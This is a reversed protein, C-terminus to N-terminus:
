LKKISKRWKLPTTETQNKFSRVFTSPGSFELLYAIEKISLKPNKLYKQALEIKLEEIIQKFNTKEDKLRRQLTRKSTGLNTAVAELSPFKPDLLRFASQKVKASYSQNDNLEAVRNSAYPLLTQMLMKDKTSIQRDLIEYPIEFWYYKQDFECKVKCIRHFESNLDKSDGMFGAKSIASEDRILTEFFRLTFICAMESIQQCVEPFEEQWAKIPRYQLRLARDSNKLKVNYPGLELSSFKVLNNLASIVNESSFLIQSLIGAAIFNLWEGFRIGFNEDDMKKIIREAFRSFPLYDIRLSNDSLEEESLDIGSLSWKKSVGRYAAYDAIMLIFKANVEKPM